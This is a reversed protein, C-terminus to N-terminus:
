ASRGGAAGAARLDLRHEHGPTTHLPLKTVARAREEDPSVPVMGASIPARRRRAREGGAAEDGGAGARWAGGWASRLRM